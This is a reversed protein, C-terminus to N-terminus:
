SAMRYILSLLFLLAPILVILYLQGRQGSRYNNIAKITFFAWLGFLALVKWDISSFKWTELMTPAILAFSWLAVILVAGGIKWEWRRLKDINEHTALETTHKRHEMESRARDVLRAMDGLVGRRDLERVAIEKAEPLYGPDLYAINV